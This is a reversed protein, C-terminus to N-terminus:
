GFIASSPPLVFQGRKDECNFTRGPRCSFDLGATVELTSRTLGNCEGKPTLVGRPTGMLAASLSEPVLLLRKTIFRIRLLDESV